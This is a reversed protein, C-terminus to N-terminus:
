QVSYHSIVFPFMCFLSSACVLAAEALSMEVPQTIEPVTSLAVETKITRVDLKCVFHPSHLPMLSGLLDWVVNVVYVFPNPAQTM